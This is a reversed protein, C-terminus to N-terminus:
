NSLLVIVGGGAGQLVGGLGEAHLGDCV